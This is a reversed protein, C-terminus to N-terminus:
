RNILLLLLELLESGNDNRKVLYSQLSKYEKDSLKHKAVKLVHQIDIKSDVEKNDTQNIVKSDFVKSFVCTQGITFEVDLILNYKGNTLTNQRDIKNITGIGLPNFSVVEELQFDDNSIENLSKHVEFKIGNVPREDKSESINLLTDAVEELYIEDQVKRWKQPICQQGHLAGILGGTFAAISDTDTGLANVAEVIAESPKSHYRCTLYIGALVTSTGSGKTEPSLCGLQKLTDKVPVDKQLAYYVDRLYQQSEDLIKIYETKFNRGNKNWEKLWQQYDAKNLFELSFKHHFDAGIQTIFSQPNFHEPRFLLIQNIAYGYIMAGLLARPHGHTIISNGFIEEKIKETDGLNALAIPLIRMAAGNAGSDRYDVLTDKVKFSYFNSNWKASKRSIKVAANKVTRGGGRAYHLWNPLEVKSFYHQDVTGGQKISRAVSLMLQTDDSYSGAKIFDTYGLFRGGVNKQWDYFKEIRDTSYKKSLSEASKEFETIWGLADGIAALKISGKYKTEPKM